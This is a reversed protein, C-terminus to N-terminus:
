SWSRVGRPVGREDFSIWGIREMGVEQVDGGWDVWCGDM